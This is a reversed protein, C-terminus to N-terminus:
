PTIDAILQQDEECRHGLSRLADIVEDHAEEPFRVFTGNFM